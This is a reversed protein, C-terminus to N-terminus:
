KEAEEYQKLIKKIIDIKVTVYVSGFDNNNIYINVEEGDLEVDEEKAEHWESM